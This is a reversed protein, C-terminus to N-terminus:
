VGKQGGSPARPRKDKSGPPRGVPKGTNFQKRYKRQQHRMRMWDWRAPDIQMIPANAIEPDCDDPLQPKM